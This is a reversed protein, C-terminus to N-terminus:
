YRGDGVSDKRKTTTTSVKYFVYEFIKQTKKQMVTVMSTLVYSENMVMYWTPYYDSEAHNSSKKLMDRVTQCFHFIVTQLSEIVCLAVKEFPIM